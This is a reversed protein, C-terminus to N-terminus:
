VGAVEVLLFLTQATHIIQDENNQERYSLEWVYLGGDSLQLGSVTVNIRPSNLGGCLQLRARRQPDLRVKGGVSMSLLTTQSQTSRHYLHLGTLHGHVQQPVCSLDLTEGETFHKLILEAHASPPFLGNTEPLFACRM